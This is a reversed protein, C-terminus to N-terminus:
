VLNLLKLTHLREGKSLHYKNLQDLFEGGKYFGFNMVMNVIAKWRGVQDLKCEFGMEGHDM